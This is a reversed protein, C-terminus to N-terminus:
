GTLSSFVVANVSVDYITDSHQIFSAPLKVEGLLDKKSGFKINGKAVLNNSNWMSMIEEHTLSLFLKIETFYQTVAYIMGM